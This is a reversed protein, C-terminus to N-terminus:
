KIKELNLQSEDLQINKSNENIYIRGIPKVDKSFIEEYHIFNNENSDSLVIKEIKTLKHFSKIMYEISLNKNMFKNCNNLVILNKNKTFCVQRSVLEILNM